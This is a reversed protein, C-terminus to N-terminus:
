TFLLGLLGIFPLFHGIFQITPSKKIKQTINKGLLLSIAPFIFFPSGQATHIITNSLGKLYFPTHTVLGTEINQDKIHFKTIAAITALTSAILIGGYKSNFFRGFAGTNTVTPITCALSAALFLAILKKSKKMIEGVIPVYLIIKEM